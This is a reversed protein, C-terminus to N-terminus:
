KLWILIRGEEDDVEVQAKRKLEEMRWRM